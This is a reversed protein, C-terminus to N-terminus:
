CSGLVASSRLRDQNGSSASRGTRTALSLALCLWCATGAAGARPRQWGCCTPAGYDLAGGKIAGRVNLPTESTASAQSRCLWSVEEPPQAGGQTRRLGQPVASLVNPAYSTALMCVPGVLLSPALPASTM